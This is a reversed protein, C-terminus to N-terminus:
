DIVVNNTSMANSNLHQSSVRPAWDVVPLALLFSLM